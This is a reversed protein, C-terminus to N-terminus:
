DIFDSKLCGERTLSEVVAGEHVRGRLLELQALRQVYDALEDGTSTEEEPPLAVGMEALLRLALPSRNRKWETFVRVHGWQRVNEAIRGREFLQVDHGACAGYLAAEVGIPGGGIIAIKM